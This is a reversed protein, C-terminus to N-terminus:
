IHAIYTYISGWLGAKEPSEFRGDSAHGLSAKTVADALEHANVEETAVEDHTM